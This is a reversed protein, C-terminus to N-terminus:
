RWVYRAMDVPVAQRQHGILAENNIHAQNTLCLKSIFPWDNITHSAPDVLIEVSCRNIATPSCSSDM